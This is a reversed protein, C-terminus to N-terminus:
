ILGTNMKQDSKFAQCISKGSHTHNDEWFGPTMNSKRNDESRGALWDCLGALEADLTGKLAAERKGTRHHESLEFGMVDM